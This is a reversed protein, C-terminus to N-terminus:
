VLLTAVGWAILLAGTIRSVIPGAPALKEILVLVTLLAIWALNMVGAVFLVAMLTWCCGVCWAGHELGMVFAGTPGPRYRRTLFHIPGRCHRLCAHKLPSLQWLGAGILVAASLVASRSWLVMPSILGRRQFAFQLGAAAVAFALWCALYGAALLLTNLVATGALDPANSVAGSPATAAATSGEDARRPASRAVKEYLLILPTAGPVMMAIMMVWWMAVATSYAIVPADMGPMPEPQAHPFLALITMELASMGMGAGQWLYSWALAILVALAAGVLARGNRLIKELM